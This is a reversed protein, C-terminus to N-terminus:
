TSGLAAGVWLEMAPECAPVTGRVPRCAPLPFWPPLQRCSLLVASRLARSVGAFRLSTRASGRVWPRGVLRGHLVTGVALVVLRRISLLYTSTAGLDAFALVAYRSLRLLGSCLLEPLGGIGAVALLVAVTRCVDQLVRWYRSRATLVTIPSVCVRGIV